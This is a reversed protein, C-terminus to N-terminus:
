IMCRLTGYIDYIVIDIGDQSLLLKAAAVSKLVKCVGHLATAGNDDKANVNCKPHKLILRMIQIVINSDEIDSDDADLCCISLPTSSGITDCVKFDPDKLLQEVSNVDRSKIARELNM